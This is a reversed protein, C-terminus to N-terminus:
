SGPLSLWAAVAASKQDTRWPSGLERGFEALGAKLQRASLRLEKGAISPLDKERVSRCSIRLADAARELVSRFLIGEAAHARVHAGGIKSLDRDPSGVVGIKRVILRDLALEDDSRTRSKIGTLITELGKADAVPIGGVDLFHVAEGIAALARDGALGFSALLSFVPKVGQLDGSPFSLNEVDKVFPIQGMGPRGSGWSCPSSGLLARGAVQEIPQAFVLLGEEAEQFIKPHIKVVILRLPIHAHDLELLLNRATKAGDKASLSKATNPAIQGGQAFLVDRQQRSQLGSKTPM